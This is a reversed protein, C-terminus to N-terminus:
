DISYTGIGLPSMTSSVWFVPVKMPLFFCAHRLPLTIFCTKLIVTYTYWPLGQSFSFFTRKQKKRKKKTPTKVFILPSELSSSFSNEIFINEAEMKWNRGLFTLGSFCALYSHLCLLFSSVMQNYRDLHLRQFFTDNHPQKRM